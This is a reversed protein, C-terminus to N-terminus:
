MLEKQERHQLMDCVPLLPSNRIVDTQQPLEDQVACHVMKGNVRDVQLM